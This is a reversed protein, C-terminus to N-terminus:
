TDAPRTPSGSVRADGWEPRPPWSSGTPNSITPGGPLVKGASTRITSTIDVYDANRVAWQLTAAADPELVLLTEGNATFADIVASGGRIRNVGVDPPCERFPAVWALDRWM